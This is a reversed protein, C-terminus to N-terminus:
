FIQLLMMHSTNFDKSIPPLKSLEKSCSPANANLLCSTSFIRTLVEQGELSLEKTNKESKKEM